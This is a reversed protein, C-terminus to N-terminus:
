MAGVLVKLLPCLGAAKEAHQSPPRSPCTRPHNHACNECCHQDLVGERVIPGPHLRERNPAMNEAVSGTATTATRLSTRGSCLARDPSESDLM